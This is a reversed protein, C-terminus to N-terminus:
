EEAPPNYGTLHSGLAGGIGSGGMMLAKGLHPYKNSLLAGPLGLGVGGGLTGWFQRAGSGKPAMAAAAGGGILPSITSLAGTAALQKKSAHPREDETAVKTLVYNAIEEATKQM